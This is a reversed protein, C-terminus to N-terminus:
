RKLDCDARQRATATDRRQMAEKLETVKVYSSCGSQAVVFPELADLKAM